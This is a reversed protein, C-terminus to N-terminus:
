YTKSSGLCQISNSMHDVIDIMEKRALKKPPQRGSYKFQVLVIHFDGELGLRKLLADEREESTLSADPAFEKLASIDTNDDSVDYTKGIARLWLTGVMQYLFGALAVRGGNFHTSM